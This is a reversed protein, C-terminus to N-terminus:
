KPLDMTLCGPDVESSCIQVKGTSEDLQWIVGNIDSIAKESFPQQALITKVSSGSMFHANKIELDICFSQNSNWKKHGHVTGALFWKGTIEGECAYMKNESLDVVIAVYTVDQGSLIYTQFIDYKDAAHVYSWSSILLIHSLVAIALTKFM